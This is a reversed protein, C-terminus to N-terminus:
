IVLHGENVIRMDDFEVFIAPFETDTMRQIDADNVHIDLPISGILSM